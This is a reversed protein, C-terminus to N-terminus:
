SLKYGLKGFRHPMKLVKHADDAIEHGVECYKGGKWDKDWQGLWGHVTLYHLTLYEIVEKEIKSSETTDDIGYKKGLNKVEENGNLCDKVSQPLSDSFKQVLDKLNILDQVSGHAAKDLLEGIFVVTKHASDDDFCPVITTPDPLKNEEFACNLLEQLIEKDTLEV